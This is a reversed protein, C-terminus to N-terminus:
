GKKEWIKALQPPVFSSTINSSQGIILWLKENTEFIIQHCDEVLTVTQLFCFRAGIKDFFDFRTKSWMKM